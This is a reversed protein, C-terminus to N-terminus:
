YVNKVPHQHGLNIRQQIENIQKEKFISYKAKDFMNKDILHAVYEGGLFYPCLLM